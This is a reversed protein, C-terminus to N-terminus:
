VVIYVYKYRCVACVSISSLCILGACCYINLTPSFSFFRNSQGHRNFTNLFVRQPIIPWDLWFYIFYMCIYLPSLSVNSNNFIPFTSLCTALVDSDTSPFAREVSHMSTSDVVRDSLFCPSVFHLELSLHIVVFLM